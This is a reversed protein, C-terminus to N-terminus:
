MEIEIEKIFFTMSDEECDNDFKIVVSDPEVNVSFRDVDIIEDEEGENCIRTAMESIVEFAMKRLYAMAKIYSDFIVGVSKTNEDDVICVDAFEDSDDFKVKLIVTYFKKM